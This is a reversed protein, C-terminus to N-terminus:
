RAGRGGLQNPYGEHLSCVHGKDLHSIRMDIYQSQVRAANHHRVSIKEGFPYKGHSNMGYHRMIAGPGSIDSGVGGGGGMRPQTYGLMHCLQEASSTSYDTPGAQSNRTRLMHKQCSKQRPAVKGPPFRTICTSHTAMQWTIQQREPITPLPVVWYMAGSNNAVAASCVNWLSMKAKPTTRNSMISWSIRHGSSLMSITLLWKRTRVIDRTRHMIGTHTRGVTAAAGTISPLPAMQGLCTLWGANSVSIRNPQLSSIHEM